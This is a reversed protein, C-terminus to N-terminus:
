SFFFIQSFFIFLFFIPSFVSLRNSASIILSAFIISSLRRPFAAFSKSIESSSYDRYGNTQITKTLTALDDKTPTYPKEEEPKEEKKYLRGFSEKVSDVDEKLRRDYEDKLYLWTATSGVIAGVAFLVFDRNIKLNRGM